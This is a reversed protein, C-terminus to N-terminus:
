ETMFTLGARIAHIHSDILGPIVTRGELEIVRTNPGIQARIEASRGVAAIRGDRVALAEAFEAGFQVIKGNILVTDAPQAHALPPGLLCAALLVAWLVPNSSARRLAARRTELRDRFSRPVSVNGALHVRAM